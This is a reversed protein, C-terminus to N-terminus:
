WYESFQIEEIEEIREIELIKEIKKKGEWIVTGKEGIFVVIEKKDYPILIAEKPNTTEGSYVFRLYFLENEQVLYDNLIAWIKELTTKEESTILYTNIINYLYIDNISITDLKNLDLIKTSSSKPLIREDLDVELLENKKHTNGETDLYISKEYAHQKQPIIHRGDETQYANSFEEDKEGRKLLELIGYITKWNFPVLKIGIKIDDSKFEMNKTRPIYNLFPQKKLRLKLIMFIDQNSVDAEEFIEEEQMLEKKIKEQEERSKKKLKNILIKDENTKHFHWGRTVGGTKKSYAKDKIYKDFEKQLRRFTTAIRLERELPKTRDPNYNCYYIIYPPYGNNEKNTKFGIFKMNRNKTGLYFTERIIESKELIEEKIVKPPIKDILDTIQNIRVDKIRSPSKDERIRTESFRPAYLKPFEEMKLLKWQNKTDDFKLCHQKILEGRRDIILDMYKIEAVLRPKLLHFARGDTTTPYYDFSKVIDGKLLFHLNSRLVDTLGSGVKTLVQYSGDDYRLATLLSSVQDKKIRSDIRGEAFGILAVDITHVPKLKYGIEDTRIILGEWNQEITKKFYERIEEKELIKSTVIRIRGKIKTTFKSFLNNLIKIRESFPKKILYDSDLIILDTIIFGIRKLDEAKKPNRSYFTLDYVRCRKNFDIPTRSTAILEGILLCENLNISSFYSELEKAIPLGLYIRHTPSNFFFSKHNNTLKNNFYFGIFIGDRKLSTYFNEGIIENIQEETKFIFNQAIEKRYYDLKNGISIFEIPLSNKKGVIYTGIKSEIKDSGIKM